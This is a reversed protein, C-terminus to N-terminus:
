HILPEFYKAALRCAKEYQSSNRYYQFLEKEYLSILTNNGLEHLHPLFTIELFLYYDEIDKDELLIDLMYFVYQYTKNQIQEALWRGDDLLSRLNQKNYFDLNLCSHVYGRIASLKLPPNPNVECQDM